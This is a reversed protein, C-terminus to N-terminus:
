DRSVGLPGPWKVTNTKRHPQRGRWSRWDKVYSKWLSGWDWVLSQSCPDADTETLPQCLRESSLRSPEQRCACCLVLLLTLPQYGGILPIGLQALWQIVKGETVATNEEWYKKLCSYNLTSLTFSFIHRRLLEHSRKWFQGYLQTYFLGWSVCSSQLLGMSEMLDDHVLAPNWYWCFCWVAWM